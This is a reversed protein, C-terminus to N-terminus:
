HRAHRKIGSERDGSGRGKRRRVAYSADDSDSDSDSDRAMNLGGMLDAIETDDAERARGITPMPRRPPPPRAAPRPPTPPAPLPTAAVTLLRAPSENQALHSTIKDIVNDPLRAIPTKRMSESSNVKKVFFRLVDSARQQLMSRAREEVTGDDTWWMTGCLVDEMDRDCDGFMFRNRELMRLCDHPMVLYGSWVMSRLSCTRSLLRIVEISVRRSIYHDGWFRVREITRSSGIVDLLKGMADEAVEGIVVLGRVNSSAGLARTVLDVDEYPSEASIRVRLTELRTKGGAVLQLIRADVQQSQRAETVDFVQLSRNHALGEFVYDVGDAHMSRLSLQELHCDPRALCSGLAECGSVGVRTLTGMELIRISPSSELAMCVRDSAPRAREENVDSSMTLKVVVCAPDAIFDAVAKAMADTYGTVSLQTVRAGHLLGAFTERLAHDEFNCDFLSLSTVRCNPSALGRGIGVTLQANIGNLTLYDVPLHGAALADALASLAIRTTQGNTPLVVVLSRVSPTCRLASQLGDQEALRRWAVDPLFFVARAHHQLHHADLPHLAKTELRDDPTEVQMGRAGCTM